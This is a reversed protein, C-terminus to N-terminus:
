KKQKYKCIFAYSWCSYLIFNLVIFIFYRIPIGNKQHITILYTYFFNCATRGFYFFFCGTIIWFPPHKALNIYEDQKLLYYYYLGCVIIFCVSVFSNSVSSFEKFNSAFSEYFYLMFFISLGAILWPKTNFYLRNLWHMVYFVFCTTVPMLLNHLWHNTKQHFYTIMLYGVTEVIVTLLLMWKFYAYLGTKEKVLYLLSFVLCIFEVIIAFPFPPVNM